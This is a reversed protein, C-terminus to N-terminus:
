PVLFDVNVQALSLRWFALAALVVCLTLTIQITRLMLKLTKVSIYSFSQKSM